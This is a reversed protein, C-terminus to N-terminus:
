TEGSKLAIKRACVFTDHLHVQLFVTQEVLASHVGARQQASKETRANEVDTNIYTHTPPENHLSSRVVMALKTYLELKSRTLCM